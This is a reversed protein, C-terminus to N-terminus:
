RGDRAPPGTKFDGDLIAGAEGTLVIPKDIVVLPERYVGRRVVVTDGSHAASVAAAVTQWRGNPSVELTRNPAASTLAALLSLTLTVSM